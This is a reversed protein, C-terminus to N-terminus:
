ITLSGKSMFDAASGDTTLMFKDYTQIGLQHIEDLLKALDPRIESNRLTVM